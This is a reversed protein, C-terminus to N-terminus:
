IEFWHSGGNAQLLNTNNNIPCLIIEKDKLNLPSLILVAEEVSCNQILFSVSPQIFAIKNVSKKELEQSLYEFYFSVAVDGLYQGEELTQIDEPNGFVDGFSFPQM